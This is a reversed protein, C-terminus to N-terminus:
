KLTTVSCVKWTKTHLNVFGAEKLGPEQTGDHAVTMSRGIRRGAEGMIKGYTALASDPSMTGDDCSVIPSTDLHEIWGGPKCHKYAKKYLDAWDEIAGNLFSIHIYDFFNEKFTWEKTADDIEFHLNPPCWTPQIPSIDTGVVDCNPMEDAFDIAWFGEGTGIDIAHTIDKKLPAQYLKEDMMLFISHYYIELAGLMKKDNPAWYEGDTVSESHYTRGNITRYNLISSSVSATSSAADSGITSDGDDSDVEPFGQELWHAGSFDGSAEAAPSTAPSAPGSTPSKGESGPSQPTLHKTPPASDTLPSGAKRKSSM